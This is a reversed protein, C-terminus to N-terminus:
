KEKGKDLSKLRRKIDRKREELGALLSLDEGCKLCFRSKKTIINIAQCYPCKILNSRRKM